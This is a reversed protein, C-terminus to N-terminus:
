EDESAPQAVMVMAPRLLRDHYTYGKQFEQTVTNEPYDDTKEKGMAQHFAPNFPQGHAQVAQVSFKTFIKLLEDLTLKVGDILGAVESADKEAASLARELNDVVSLLEKLLTENAYKRSEATERLIRKKYNDFEAGIRLYRDHNTRAEEKASALREELETVPDTPTTNTLDDVKDSATEPIDNNESVTNNNRVPISTSDETKTKPDITKKESAKQEQANISM